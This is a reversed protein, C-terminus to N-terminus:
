IRPHDKRLRGKRRLKYVGKKKETSGGEGDTTRRVEATRQMDAKVSEAMSAPVVKELEGEPVDRKKMTFYLRISKTSWKTGPFRRM